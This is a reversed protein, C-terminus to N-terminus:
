RIEICHANIAANADYTYVRINEKGSVPVFVTAYTITSLFLFIWIRVKHSYCKFRVYRLFRTHVVHAGLRICRLSIPLELVKFVQLNESILQPHKYRVLM